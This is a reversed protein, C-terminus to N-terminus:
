ANNSSFQKHRELWQIAFSEFASRMEVSGYKTVELQCKAASSITRHSKLCFPCILKGQAIKRNKNNKISKSAKWPTIMMQLKAKFKFKVYSNKPANQAVTLWNLTM